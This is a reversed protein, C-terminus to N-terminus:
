VGFGVAVVGYASAKYATRSGNENIVFVENNTAATLAALSAKYDAKAGILADRANDLRSNEKQFAKYASRVSTTESRHPSLLKRKAGRRSGSLYGPCTKKAYAEVEDMIHGKDVAKNSVKGFPLRLQEEKPEEPETSTEILEEMYYNDEVFEYNDPNNAGSVM